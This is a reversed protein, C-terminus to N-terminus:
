IWATSVISRSGRRAAMCRCLPSSTATTAPSMLAVPRPVRCRSLPLGPIASPIDQLLTQDFTTSTQVNQLDVVPQGQVVVTQAIEGLQLKANV